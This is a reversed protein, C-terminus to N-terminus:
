RNMQNITVMKKAAKQTTIIKFIKENPKALAAIELCLLKRQWFIIVTENASSGM